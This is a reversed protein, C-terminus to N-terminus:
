ILCVMKLDNQLQKLKQGMEKLEKQANSEMESLDPTSIELSCLVSRLRYNIFVAKVALHPTPSGAACHRTKRKCKLLGTRLQM